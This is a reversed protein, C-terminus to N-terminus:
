DALRSQLGSIYVVMRILRLQVVTIYLSHNKHKTKGVSTTRVRKATESSSKNLEKAPFPSRNCFFKSSPFVEFFTHVVVKIYALVTLLQTLNDTDIFVHLTSDYDM